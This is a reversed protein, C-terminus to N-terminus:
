GLSGRHRGRPLIDSWVYLLCEESLFVEQFSFSKCFSKKFPIFWKFLLSFEGTVSLLQSCIDFCFHLWKISAFLIGLYLLKVWNSVPFLKPYNRCECNDQWWWPRSMSPANLRSSLLDFTECELAQLDNRARAGSELEWISCVRIPQPSSELLKTGAVWKPSRSPNGPEWSWSQGWANLANPSNIWCSPLSSVWESM